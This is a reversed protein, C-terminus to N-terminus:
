YKLSIQIESKFAVIRPGVSKYTLDPLSMFRVHLIECPGCSRPFINQYLPLDILDFFFVFNFKFNLCLFFQIEWLFHYKPYSLM